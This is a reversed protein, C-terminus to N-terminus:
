DAHSPDAGDSPEGGEVVRRIADPEMDLGAGIEALLHRESPHYDRDAKAVRLAARLVTAKDGPSLFSAIDLAFEEAARRDAAAAEIEADLDDDALPHGLLEEYVRALVAREEPAVRGDELVMRVVLGRLGQRLASEVRHAFREDDGFLIDPGFRIGCHQCVVRRGVERARGLPIGLFRRQHREIVLEYRREEHCSPCHFSGAGASETTPKPSVTGPNSPHAGDGFSRRPSARTLATTAPM